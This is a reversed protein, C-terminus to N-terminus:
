PSIMPQARRALVINRRGTYTMSDFLKDYPQMQCSAYYARSKLAVGELVAM